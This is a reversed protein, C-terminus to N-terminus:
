CKKSRLCSPSCPPRTHPPMFSSHVHSITPNGAMFMIVDDIDAELGSSGGILELEQSTMGLQFFVTSLNEVATFICDPDALMGVGKLQLQSTNLAIETM